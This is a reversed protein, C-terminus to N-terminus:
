GESEWIIEIYDKIENLVFYSKLAKAIQEQTAEEGTVKKIFHEVTGLADKICPAVTDM